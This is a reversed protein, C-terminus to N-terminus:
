LSASPDFDPPILNEGTLILRSLQEAALPAMGFGIKFGGNAIFEGTRFPHKGLMPARTRSRPRVGAWRKIEPADALVPIATRAKELLADCQNDTSTPDDFDRETTSGIATTGDAHPIIHLGDVFLQPATRADYELLVAQGKIGAGVMRTHDATLANLGEWGTAWVVHGEDPGDTAIQGGRATIAAALAACAQAPHLRASLTDHILLGTPSAPAFDSSATVVEWIARGQWLTRAGQGRDKALALAADDVIPQLRGTRAYGSAAGGADEVQAWWSEAMLLSELQFAKKPNWQEPVHPALAGVIGGSAGSAVGNPDIVRVTAGAQICAWAVSLGFAGAGRVTVDVTAM